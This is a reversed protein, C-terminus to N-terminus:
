RWFWLERFFQFYYAAGWRLIQLKRVGGIRPPEGASVEVVRLGKKAARVSMLPEWSITTGFLNEALWYAEHDHLCLEDVLSKRFARFIVMADTYKGGHLLNVTRTFLWNGFATVWDDDESKCNLYRSGIVLDRGIIFSGDSDPDYTLPIDMMMQIMKPIVSVDCNGDPSMTLVISGEVHPWVEHYAHRVGPKRQQYVDYGYKRCWEVTGDTSGGDVVILQRYWMPDIKPLVARVGDIENLTLALITVDPRNDLCKARKANVELGTIMALSDRDLM